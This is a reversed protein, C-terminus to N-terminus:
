DQGDPFGFVRAELMTIRRESKVMYTHLDKALAEQTVQMAKQNDRIGQLIFLAVTLGATALVGITALIVELVGM